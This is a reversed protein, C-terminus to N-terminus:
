RAIYRAWLALNDRPDAKRRPDENGVLVSLVAFLVLFGFGIVFM